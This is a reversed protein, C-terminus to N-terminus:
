VAQLLLVQLHVLLQLLHLSLVVALHVQLLLVQLHVLLQLLHLSLVM